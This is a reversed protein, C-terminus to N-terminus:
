AYESLADSQSMSVTACRALRSRFGIQRALRKCWHHIPADVALMAM